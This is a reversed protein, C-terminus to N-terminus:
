QKKEERPKNERELTEKYAQAFEPAPTFDVAYNPKAKMTGVWVATKESSMTAPPLRFFKGDHLYYGSISASAPNGNASVFKYYVKFETGAPIDRVFWVDACGTQPCDSYYEDNFYRGQKAKPDVDPQKGAAGTSNAYLYLDIDQKPTWGTAVVVVPNRMSLQQAKKQTEELEKLTQQLQAQQQHMMQELQQLQQQMQPANPSNALQARLEELKKQLEQARREADAARASRSRLMELERMARNLQGQLMHIKSELQQILEKVKEGDASNALKRKLEELKKQLDEAQEVTEKASIGKASYYPFLALMMFCFAGLAGCLIDLLSMNFINVERNGAKLAM